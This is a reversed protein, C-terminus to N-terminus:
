VSVMVGCFPDVWATVMLQEPAGVSDVQVGALLGTVSFPVVAWITVILTVVVAPESSGGTVRGNLPQHGKATSADNRISHKSSASRKPRWYM